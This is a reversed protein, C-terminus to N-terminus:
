RHEGHGIEVVVPCEASDPHKKLEEECEALYHTLTGRFDQMRQMRDDLEGLKAHLLDRVSRCENRGNNALLIGIEDLSFGLEQAQRIFLLREIVGAGFLRYGNSSRPTVPLLRRREYFRVADISIGARKAVEGIRFESQM